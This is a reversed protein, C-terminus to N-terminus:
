ASAEHNVARTATPTLSRFPVRVPPFRSLAVSRYAAASFLIEDRLLEPTPARLVRQPSVTPIRAYCLGTIGRWVYWRPFERAYAWWAPATTEASEWQDAIDALSGTRLEM